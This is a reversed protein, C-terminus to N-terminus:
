KACFRESHPVRGRLIRFPWAFGCRAFSGSVGLGQSGLRVQLSEPMLLPNEVRNFDMVSVSGLPPLPASCKATRLYWGRASQGIVRSAEVTITGGKPMADQANSILIVVVQEIQGADARVWLRERELNLQLAINSGIIQRLRPQMAAVVASLDMTIENDIM